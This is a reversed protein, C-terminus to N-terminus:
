EPKAGSEKVIPAWKVIEAKIYEGLQEPTSTRVEFGQGQLREAVEKDHLAKIIESNLKMVVERPTGAPAVVSYVLEVEYGPLSEAIAPINPASTDRKLGTVGIANLKGSKVYQLAAPTGIMALEVQGGLVDNLAPVAGKYPVHVLKIGARNNLLEGGLHLPTGAGSSAFNLKGPNAKAYAVLEAYNKVPVKPNAVLTLSSAATLTVPAFDKVTNYSLKTYLAENIAQTGVMMLLLTYGDAPAKAVFDAALNTGAGPKNDVIVPQGMSLQMKQGLARALVDSPGGAAFGVILRVPHDPYAAQAQASVGCAAAALFIPTFLRNFRAIM